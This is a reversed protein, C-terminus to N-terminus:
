VVQRQALGYRQERKRFAEEGGELIDCVHERVGCSYLIGPDGERRARFSHELSGSVYEFRYERNERDVLQGAQNSVIINEADTLVVLNADHTIMIIQRTLKKTEIFKRLENSITRNDLNDEPQDMLIPHTANSIHLILQMLVLGRKGPSM